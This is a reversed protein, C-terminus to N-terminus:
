EYIRFPEYPKATFITTSLKQTQTKFLERFSVEKGTIPLKFKETIRQEYYEFYTKLAPQTLYIGKNEVPQFHEAKFIENNFLSLTFRDIFPHRFEEVLDLALSPRGYKLEHLFGIYPDLSHATVLAFIENTLMTYGFSLLANVPDKPPRRTRKEFRFQKRFMKGFARFYAATAIGESGMINSVESKHALKALTTEITQLESSFDADPYNRQYRMILARGNNLKATVITRALETKFSDSLYRECQAVKLLVNKNAAPMIKGRYKGRRSLYYIEIGEDLLADMAEGTINISSGLLVIRDINFLPARLMTESGRTIVITRSSVRVVSGVETLYITSM